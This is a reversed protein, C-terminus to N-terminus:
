DLPDRDWIDKYVFPGPPPFGSEKCLRVLTRYMCWAAWKTRWNYYHIQIKLSVATFVTATDEPWLVFAAVILGCLLYTGQM